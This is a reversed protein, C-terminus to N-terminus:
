IIPLSLHRSTFLVCDM